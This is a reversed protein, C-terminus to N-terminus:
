SHSVTRKAQPEDSDVVASAPRKKGAGASSTASAGSHVARIHRLIGATSADYQQLIKSAEPCIDGAATAAAVRVADQVCPLLDNAMKKGLEVGWQDFPNINWIAAQALVKHEYMAVLSGFQFPTLKPYVISTSPKSGAFIRHPTLADREAEPLNKMDARVQAESKGMMLAATQALFNSLLLEHQEFPPNIGQAPALFDCPILKTGQHILQFFAHQGNTGPEGWIISGTSYDVKQGDLNTSKGNSEMDCQQLYAPLRALYQDYPLIAHTQADLFNNYWVGLLALVLPVCKSPQDITELFHRDMFNAGDLMQEFHDMGVFLAISLGVAGWMSFRGGVWDWFEFMNAPDIGFEQCGRQNTSLAVFHKAVAAEGAGSHELFWAKAARANALTEQTTFTKSAIIFLTTAPNVLRLVEALHTPDVNSIFHMRLGGSHGYHALAQCAMAPGLDSGGIGINVVDTMTQDSHGRWAGSRVRETFDRMQALVRRIGPMVDDAGGAGAASVVAAPDRCRLATHLAARGETRNVAEGGLTRRVTTAVKTAEALRGLQQWVEADVLNKSFDVLFPGEPTDLSLSFERVREPTMVSTLNMPAKKLQAASEVLAKWEPLETLPTQQTM